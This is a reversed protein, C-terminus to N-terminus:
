SLRVTAEVAALAHEQELEYTDIFQRFIHAAITAAVAIILGFATTFLAEYLGAAVLQLQVTNAEAISKFASIMGTVTGLFGLIPAVSSIMDLYSLPRELRAVAEEGRIRAMGMARACGGQCDLATSVAEGWLNEPEECFRIAEEKGQTKYIDLAAKAGQGPRLDSRILLITREVIIVTVAVLLVLLPWMVPGGLMFLSFLSISEQM